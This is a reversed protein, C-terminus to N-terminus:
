VGTAQRRSARELALSGAGAVVAAVGILWGVVPLSFALSILLVGLALRAWRSAAPRGARELLWTGLWYGVFVLALVLAAVYLTFLVVALPIGILTFLLAGAVIPVLILVGLGAAISAGPRARLTGAVRSTWPTSMVLVGAGLVFLALFWMPWATIRWWRNSSTRVHEVRGLVQAGSEIEPPQPSRVVLNGHIVAGPLLTVHQARVEADGGVDAAIRATTAGVRLNGAIRGEATVMNGALNADRGVVGRARLHVDRGALRANNAVRDDVTVTEGAAWVDNGVPATIAVTRGAAMVYGSVPAEIGVDGGAAAVDGNVEDRLHVSRGARMVDGSVANGDNREPLPEQALVAGSVMLGATMAAVALALPTLMGMRLRPIGLRTLM